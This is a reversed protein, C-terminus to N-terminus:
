TCRPYLTMMIMMMMIMIMMIMMIMIALLTLNDGKLKKNNILRLSDQHTEILRM